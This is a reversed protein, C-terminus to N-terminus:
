LRKYIRVIGVTGLIGALIGFSILIVPLVDDVPNGTLRPENTLTLSLVVIGAFAMGSTITIGFLALYRSLRSRLKQNLEDDTDLDDIYRSQHTRRVVVRILMLSVLIFLLVLGGILEM